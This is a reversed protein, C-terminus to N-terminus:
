GRCDILKLGPSKLKLIESDGTILTMKESISQTVIMQDFPDLHSTLISASQEIHDPTINLWDAGLKVLEGSLLEPSYALKGKRYKLSLEWFSALSVRVEAAALLADKAAQSLRNPEFLAWIFVHSDILVVEKM